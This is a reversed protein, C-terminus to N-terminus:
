FDRKFKSICLKYVHVDCKPFNVYEIHQIFFMLHM